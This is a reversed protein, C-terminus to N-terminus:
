KGLLTDIADIQAQLEARKANMLHAYKRLVEDFDMYNYEVEAAGECPLCFANCRSSFICRRVVHEDNGDVARVCTDLDGEETVIVCHEFDM